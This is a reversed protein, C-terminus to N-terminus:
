LQRAYSELVDDDVDDIDFDDIGTGDDTLDGRASRASAPDADPPPKATNALKHPLRPLPRVPVGKLAGRMFDSWIPLAFRAGTGHQMPARDDHGVWTVAVLGASFGAFWTDRGRNTTGTKGAVPRGVKAARASGYRVVDGLMDVLQANVDARITRQPAPSARYLEHGDRDLVRTVLIPKDTVGGSALTAYANALEMPRVSSAGLALPLDPRLESEIGIRNAFEAVRAPGVKDAVAVAISNISRALASRLTHPKGDWRGSYNRPTWSRGGSRYARKEDAFVTNPTVLGAELAAGMVFTKFTSGPQRLASQARNFPHLNFDDGGVMARVLRTNPEIAVIAAQPGQELTLVPVVAGDRLETSATMAVRIVDGRTYTATGAAPTQYRQVHRFPLLGPEGGLDVVYRKAAPEVHLVVAQVVAGNRLKRGKRDSKLRRAIGHLEAESEATAIPKYARLRTDIRRLGRKVADQAARQAVVDLGLEVRLGGRRLVDAPVLRRLETRAARVYYPAELDLEKGAKTRVPAANARDADAASIYGRRQMQDLVYRRRKKAAAADRFPSLREPSNILGALLAAEALDIAIVPKSLYYRSAEQVGYRGHGFYIENLYMALIDHKRLKQELKRALVLEKLKRVISKERSLFRTKAFQQTITSAGQAYRGETVDIWLARAIGVLDLGPHHFFAADEACVAAYLLTKPIQDAPVLTRNEGGFRALLEGGAAHVRTSQLAIKRYADYSFVDPLRAQLYAFGLAGAATGVAAVILVTALARKIWKGM